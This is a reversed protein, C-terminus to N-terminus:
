ENLSDLFNNIDKQSELKKPKINPQSGVMYRVIYRVPYMILNVKMKNYYSEIVNYKSILYSGFYTQNIVNITFVLIYYPINIFQAIPHDINNAVKFLISILILNYFSIFNFYFNSSIFLIKLLEGNSNM